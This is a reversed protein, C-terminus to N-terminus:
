ARGSRARGRRWHLWGTLLSGAAAGVAFALFLLLAQSVGAQWGLFRVRAVEANQSAFVLAAGFLLLGAALRAYVRASAIWDHEERVLEM